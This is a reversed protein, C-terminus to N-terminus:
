DRQREALEANEAEAKKKAELAAERAEKVEQDYQEPFKLKFEALDEKVLRQFLAKFDFKTKPQVEFYYCFDEEQAFTLIDDRSVRRASGGTLDYGILIPNQSGVIERIESVIEPTITHYSEADNVDFCFMLDAFEGLKEGMERVMQSNECFAFIINLPLLNKYMFEHAVFPDRLEDPGKRLFDGVMERM